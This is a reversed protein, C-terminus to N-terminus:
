KLGKKTLYYNTKKKLWIKINLYNKINKFMAKRWSALALTQFWLSEMYYAQLHNTRVIQLSKTMSKELKPSKWFKTITEMIGDTHQEVMKLSKETFMTKWQEKYWSKSVSFVPKLSLCCLLLTYQYKYYRYKEIIFNNWNLVWSCNM